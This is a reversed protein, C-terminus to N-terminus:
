CSHAVNGARIGMFSYAQESAEVKFYLKGAAIPQEALIEELGDMRKFGGSPRTLAYWDSAM